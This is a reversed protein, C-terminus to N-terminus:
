RHPRGRYRFTLLSRAPPPQMWTWFLADKLIGWQPRCAGRSRYAPLQRAGHDCGCNSRLLADNRLHRRGVFQIFPQIIEMNM